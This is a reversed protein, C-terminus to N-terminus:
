NGVVPALLLPAHDSEHLRLLSLEHMLRFMDQVKKKKKTSRKDSNNSKFRLLSIAVDCDACVLLPALLLSADDDRPSRFLFRVLDDRPSTWLKFLQGRAITTTVTLVLDFTLFFYTRACCIPSYPAIYVSAYVKIDPYIAVTIKAHLVHNM